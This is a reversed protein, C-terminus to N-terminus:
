PKHFQPNFQVVEGHGGGLMASLGLIGSHGFCHESPLAPSTALLDFPQPEDSQRCEASGWSQHGNVPVHTSVWGSATPRSMSSHRSKPRCSLPPAPLLASQQWLSLPASRLSPPLSPPLSPSRFRHLRCCHQSVAALTVAACVQPFSPNLRWAPYRRRYRATVSSELIGGMCQGLPSEIPLAHCAHSMDM